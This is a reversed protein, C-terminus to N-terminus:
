VLALLLKRRGMPLVQESHKDLERLTVNEGMVKCSRGRSWQSLGAVRSSCMLASSCKPIGLVAVKSGSQTVFGGQARQVLTVAVDRSVSACCCGFSGLM